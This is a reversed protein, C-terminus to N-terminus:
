REPEPLDPPTSDSGSLHSAWLQHTRERTVQYRCYLYKAELKKQDRPLIGVPRCQAERRQLWMNQSRQISSHATRYKDSAYSRLSATLYQEMTTDAKSVEIQLCQIANDISRAGECIPSAALANFSALLLAPIMLKLM